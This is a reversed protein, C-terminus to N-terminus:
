KRGMNYSAQSPRVTQHPFATLMYSARRWASHLWSRATRFSSKGKVSMFCMLLMSTKNLWVCCTENVLIFVYPTWTCWRPGCCLLGFTIPRHAYWILSIVSNRRWKLILLLTCTVPRSRSLNPYRLTRSWAPCLNERCWRVWVPEPRAGQKRILFIRFFHFM